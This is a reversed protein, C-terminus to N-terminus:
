SGITTLKNDENDEKDFIIDHLYQIATYVTGPNFANDGLTTYGVVKIGTQIGNSIDDFVQNSIETTNLLSDVITSTLTGTGRIIGYKWNPTTDGINEWTLSM